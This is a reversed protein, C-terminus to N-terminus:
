SSPKHSSKSKKSKKQVDNIRHNLVSRWVLECRRKHPWVVEDGLSCDRAARRRKAEASATSSSLKPVLGPVPTDGRLDMALQLDKPELVPIKGDTSRQKSIYLMSDVLSDIYEDAM